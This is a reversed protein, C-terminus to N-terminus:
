RAVHSQQVGSAAPGAGWHVGGTVGSARLVERLSSFSEHTLQLREDDIEGRAAIAAPDRDLAILRGRTGLQALIGRSHGGRGFTCDVYVGDARVKLGAVAAQLLVPTHSGLSM